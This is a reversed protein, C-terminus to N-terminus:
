RIFILLVILGYKKKKKFSLNRGSWLEEEQSFLWAAKVENLLHIKILKSYIAATHPHSFDVLTFIDIVNPM